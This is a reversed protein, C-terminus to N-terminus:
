ETSTVDVETYSGTGIFGFDTIPWYRLFVKGKLQDRAVFGVENYRSDKSVDRNDGLIFYSGEPVRLPENDKIFQLSETPAFDTYINSPLYNEQLLKGNVYVKGESIRVIDGPGAIIRKILNEGHLDFIVVDGRKYDYNFNQGFSTTGLWQITKNAFLLDNDHFNDEMSRGDVISPVLFVLYLVFSFVVAIGVTTLLDTFIERNSKGGGGDLFPNDSM